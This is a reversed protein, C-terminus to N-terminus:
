CFRTFSSWKWRLLTSLSVVLLHIAWVDGHIALNSILYHLGFSTYLLRVECERCFEYPEQDTM